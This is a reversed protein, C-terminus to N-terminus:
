KIVKFNSATVASNIHDLISACIFEKSGSCVINYRCILNQDEDFLMTCPVEGANVARMFDGNVDIYTEFDWNNGNVLPKVHSWSGNCDVCIAVMRVRRERLTEDCAEALTELNDCCKNSSSKWFVVMTSTGPQTIQSSSIINGDIDRLDVNPISSQQASLWLTPWFALLVLTINKM